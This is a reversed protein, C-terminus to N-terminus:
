KIFASVLRPNPQETTIEWLTRLTVSPRNIVPWDVKYLFSFETRNQQVVDGKIAAQRILKELEGANEVTIELASAFVRAKHKGLSHNLNLCYGVIKEMSVIALEGNPLKM